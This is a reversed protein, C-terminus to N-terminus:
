AADAAALRTLAEGDAYVLRRPGFPGELVADDGIVAGPIREIVSM